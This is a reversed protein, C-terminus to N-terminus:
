AASRQVPASPSGSRLEALMRGADLVPVTDGAWALWGNLFRSPVRDRPATPADPALVADFPELGLVADVVM